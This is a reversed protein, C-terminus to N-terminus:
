FFVTLGFTISLEDFSVIYESCSFFQLM